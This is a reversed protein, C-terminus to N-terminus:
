FDLDPQNEDFITSEIPVLDKEIEIDKIPIDQNEIIKEMVGEMHLLIKQMFERSYVNANYALTIQSLEKSMVYITLDYSTQEFGEFRALQSVLEKEMEKDPGVTKQLQQLEKSVPVNGFAIFHDFLNQKLSSEAQIEVLPYYHHPESNVADQRVQRFLQRVTTEGDFGIRVPIMNTFLGVMREFGKIGPPRGSVISGFIVDNKGTYKGLLIPWVTQFVTNMTIGNERVVRNLIGTKEKGFVLSAQESIFGAKTAPAKIKPVSAMEEYGAVYNQWYKKSKDRDFKELWQIYNKYPAVPSLRPTRDQLYAQYIEKFDLFLVSRSWGDLLIAHYTWILEYQSQELKIVAFRMLIDKSLDFPKRIDNEKFEKLFAEKESEKKKSIDEYYINPKRQKFVLQLSRELGEIDKYVFITRLIDHRRVLEAISKEVITVDLRGQMRYANRNIFLSTTSSNDYIAYFLMGEQMPTLPYIDEIEDPYKQILQRIIDGPLAKYTFDGKNEPEEIIEGPLPTSPNASAISLDNLLGAFKEITMYEYLHTILLNVNFAENIESVLLLGKISNGGLQFFDSTVSINEIKEELIKGWINALKSETENRPAVAPTPVGTEGSRNAERAAALERECQLLWEKDEESLINIESLKVAPNDLVLSVIEKLYRSFRGITEEKFLATSYEFVFSLRDEGKKGVLTLDFKATRTEYSYPLLKLGPIHIEGIEIDQIGFMVDFLPNRGTDRNIDVKEVLDEFPYDQNDFAALTREKVENLFTEFTKDGQPYNRLALTNVFMGIIKKLDTHQRGATPTGVIIDEQGSIKALLVNYIALLVMYLTTGQHAALEEVGSSQQPSLEVTLSRGEFDQVAPRPYDSPLHLVPIEGEFQKLWYEEQKKVKEKEPASNQWQSYDKYRIRLPPLQNGEYLTMFEKILLAMSTGDSIIHHMDVMLLHTHPGGTKKILGVKVLPAQGLDFPGRFSEVIGAIGEESSEFYDISFALDKHIRQRPERDLMEFSTRFSEHRKVLERCTEEFRERDLEGELEVIQPINYADSERTMQQLIYLRRQAASLLYYDKEEVMELSTFRDRQAGRIYDAMNNLKSRAFLDVLPFKVHLAKHVNSILTIAQLSNGGIEFFDSHIGIREKEIKLVEAWIGALKREISDRPAAYQEDAESSIKDPEPLAKRDLKGNPSLPMKELMIFYSPIMYDPLQIALHEQLEATSIEGEPVIYACLYKDETHEGRMLAVAEGVKEHGLLQSEIEGLEIRLGRLKVQNDMRGLFEMNGDEFWRAVDGTKYIKEGPVFPNDIFKGSTLPVDNIYGTALCEGGIYLDGPVGLPCVHLYPDLIYYKANQIPKGYPISNWSPEVIGVPYFNSWIAAETAGGLAIVKVGKFAERLADPLPVPVWDGSLFVLRLQSEKQYHKIEPLFPVLQQLSAPASDWFTIGEEMIIELLREPNKIDGHSVVRITGGCALVGFIDYVSLDFGLSAIFLLKDGTRVSFTKNVWRIVNIVPRHKVVVGKPEGTSGSTYIIYAIDGATTLSTLNHHPIKSIEAPSVVTKGKLWSRDPLASRAGGDLCFIHTLEPLQRAIGMAKRLQLHNTLACTVVLSKLIHIIRTDPLYPELPVYAGGAKLIGIVAIVMEITRDMIVGVFGPAMGTEKLKVAWQNAKRNLAEYSIEEGEFTVAIHGPTKEVQEEFLQHLTKDRSYGAATDNFEYLLRHKEAAPIMELEFLKKGPQRSVNHVTTKFYTVWRQITTRKFLKTCYDLVLKMGEPAEFVHLNLDFQTTTREYLSLESNLKIIGKEENELREQENHFDFMVEFLPNRSTDRNVNLDEVFDEFQYSRNEFAELTLEKVQQLFEKYSQNPVPYNRLCLLNIFVGVVEGLDTHRRGAEPTGVVIVEQSSLKSLLIYYVSLLVMFLTVNENLAIEKLAATEEQDLEFGICSGEFSKIPPRQYDNPLNLVPVDGKFLNLWYEEQQQIGPSDKWSNQWQSFDKYQLKLLPLEEGWYLSIFDKILINTSIGDSVIHHIDVVMFYRTKEIEIVAIRFIPAKSMNFPNIFTRVTDRAKEKSIGYYEISIETDAAEHIKQMAVGDVEMFSTRLMEHRKILKKVINGISEINPKVKLEQMQFMNYATTEPDMQQLFFLRQQASSLLYYEKKEVPEVPAYEQGGVGHIFASLERITPTKFIEALPIKRNLDRFIKSVVLTAKLSHGGLQFFNDDIGILHKDMGLVESWVDVLVNEVRDRPAIYVVETKKEPEPLRERDVKGNPMLPLGELLVVRPIMYHPLTNSITKKIDAADIHDVVVYAVLYKQGGRDERVVVVCERVGEIALIKSEIEGPEVRFGRVKVLFDKRGRLEINGDPLWRGIDGSRYLRGRDKSLVPHNVLKQNTLEENNIYGLVESCGMVFLEGWVGIPVPNLHEDLIYIKVNSIPKGAPPIPTRHATSADLTYSTVVHMETSGYHNHLQLDPNSELFRKLGVTVKLQEGATIIHKLNHNFSRNWRSSENFLFNLYSFPLFLVEIRHTSLFDMLYDIDQREIDGILHLEGGSTLTGMIEQFSVCFNISTFQLCRLSGDISTRENQWRILNTLCDHSLMAGNPMGTSGSTYNVYLIDPPQNKVPPNETSKLSINDWLSTIDIIKGKYNELLEPRMKDIILVQAQSDALVHLVRDRPYTPDVALYAGGSKIIGLLVIIMDISRDVSVGIVDNPKVAYEDRLYHALQNIRRNLDGRSIKKGDHVVATKNGSQEVQEEFLKQLTTGPNTYQYDTDNFERIVRNHESASLINLTSVPVDVGAIVSDVLTLFNDAMREATSRRFLDSNYELRVYVRDEMEDIFFILDFKSMNFDSSYSYGSISVGEMVLEIDGTETNNHALMVNFLPSQSLDRDLELQEVLLDFPFDQYRYCTLADHKVKELLQKFSEGPQVPCRYILTNVLFGIMHNLEPRKRNAIPSGIIIDKQNTLRYLFINLVTLLGMFLTAERDLSLRRLQTTKEKDITFLVRGGNFTQIPKRPNDLPLEIGNPKDNFKELWYERSKHFSSGEILCNHWDAYDKYQFKLLVRPDPREALFANYLTIVENSIIGQSWGDSVIHHINYMLIYKDDELRVLKFRFLPGKELDFPRNSHQIYVQRTKEKKTEEDLHRFDEQDPEATLGDIIKQYPDGKVLIFVTRLSEHRDALGQLAKTFVEVNFSGSITIASPINYATSDEEFQCLVWLRRQAYSLDYYEKKETSEMEIYELDEMGRARQALERITPNVFVEEIELNIELEKYIRFVLTTATLSHGGLQFFDDDIGPSGPLELIETWIKALKQEIEDRPAVYDAGKIGIEPQPLMRTDVKGSPNLPMKKLLVFHAPVMYGPLEEVLREKLGPVLTPTPPEMSQHTPVIYACIYKEGSKYERTTVLAEKVGEHELIKKEVEGPEIRFGRIKIQQDVRGLFEIVGEPLWRALDGTKYLINTRYSRYSRYFGPKNAIQFKQSTLEPNNLYGRALSDGTICLEGPLGPYQIQFDGEKFNLIYIRTNDIPRGIPINDYHKEVLFATSVVTNETPGYNNYLAYSRTSFFRLKDGGTLLVRLSRNEREMFQECFQTPLFGITIHHKEYYDNLKKTDLRIKSDIIHLCAGAILYPFIEWVSADFSLAAYQAAHDSGTVRYYRNHWSCLNVLSRHEVLTGKPKGTTGSTYIIYAPDASGALGSGTRTSREGIVELGKSGDIVSIRAGSDNLMYKKRIEPNTPEIPLYAGDAKLIGLIGVIMEVSREVTLAVITGPTVGKERLIGALQDAKEDLERYSIYTRHKVQLPGVVAAQDPTRELQEEFLQYITKGAPYDVATNNFDVLMQKKEEPSILEINSLELNVDATVERLLHNFLRIIGRITTSKYLLPNYEWQGVISSERRFFSVMMNLDLHSLYKKDHINEVLVAIDFLPFEDGRSFPMNLDKALIEVPYNQNEAAKIITEKVGMLLQKFTMGPEVRNRLVLATNIFDVEAEPKLIPSGLLIDTPNAALGTGADDYAYARLYRHLLASLGAVLIMHFRVDSGSSLKILAGSLSASFEFTATELRKGGPGKRDYDMPFRSKGQFGALKALWYDKEDVRQTATVSLEDLKKYNRM